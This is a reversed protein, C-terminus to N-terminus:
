NTLSDNPRRNLEYSTVDGAPAVAIMVRGANLERLYEHVKQLEEVRECNALLTALEVIADRMVGIPEYEEPTLITKLRTDHREAAKGVADKNPSPALLIYTMQTLLYNVVKNKDSIKM